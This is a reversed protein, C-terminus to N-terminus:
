PSSISARIAAPASGGPYGAAGGPDGPGPDGAGRALRVRPRQGGPSAPRLRPALQPTFRLRFGVCIRGLTHTPPCSPPGQRPKLKGVVVLSRKGRLSLLARNGPLIRLWLASHRAGPDGPRNPGPARGTNSSEPAPCWVSCTPPLSCRPTASTSSRTASIAWRHDGAVLNYVQHKNQTQGFGDMNFAIALSPEAAVKPKDRIMQAQFQHILLLKQPLNHTVTLQQLWASVQNIEDATTHGVQVTPLQGPQLEWEPDLALGVHPDTLWPELTKADDLFSSRGPQIDLILMGDHADVVQRYQEIESPPLMQAYSGDPGAAAEATYAILEYAPVVTAGPRAFPVAASAVMPWMQDPPADGLVGLTPLGPTGYFAVLRHSPFLSRGGGPEYTPRPPAPPGAHRSSRAAPSGSALAVIQRVGFGVLSFTVVVILAAVLRRRWYMRRTGPSANPSPLPRSTRCAPRGPRRGAAGLRHPCGFRSRSGGHTSDGKVRHEARDRVPGHPRWHQMAAAASCSGSRARGTANGVIDGEGGPGSSIARSASFAESTPSFHDPGGWTVLVPTLTASPRVM